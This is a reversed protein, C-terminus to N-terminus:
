ANTVTSLNELDALIATIQLDLSTENTTKSCNSFQMNRLHVLKSLPMPRKSSKLKTSIMKEQMSNSMSKPTKYLVSREKIMKKGKSTIYDLSKNVADKSSHPKKDNLFEDEFFANSDPFSSDLALSLLLRKTLGKLIKCRKMIRENGSKTPSNRVMLLDIACRIEHTVNKIDECIRRVNELNDMEMDQVSCTVISELVISEEIIDSLMSMSLIGSNTLSSNLADIHLKIEEYAVQCLAFPDIIAYIMKRLSEAQQKWHQVLLFAFHQNIGANNCFVANLNPVLESELAELSALCNKMKITSTANTTSSTAFFGIQMIRDVHLDYEVIVDDLADSSILKNFSCNSLKELPDFYHSFIKLSLKLVCANVKRELACIKDYCSDISLNCMAININDKNIEEFLSDLHELVTKCSGRIIKSDEVYTVQAISMSYCLIDEIHKRSIHYSQLYIEKNDSVDIQALKDLAADVLKQFSEHQIFNSNGSLLLEIGEICYCLQKIIFTRAEMIDEKIEDEKLFIQILLSLLTLIQTLHLLLTRIHNKNGQTKMEKTYSTIELIIEAIVNCLERFWKSINTYDKSNSQLSDIHRRCKLLNTSISEM